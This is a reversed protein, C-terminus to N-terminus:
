VLTNNILKIKDEIIKAESVMFMADDLDDGIVNGGHSLLSHCTAIGM